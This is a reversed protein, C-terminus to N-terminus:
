APEHRREVWFTVPGDNTLHVDMMAGFVGTEVPLGVQERLLEVFRKYLVRAKKPGAARDFSPRNGREVDGYLTFQPVILAEGGVDTISRNMKDEDDAFIRLNACKHALWSAEEETDEEHVGLLVLMGPGISGVTEGSVEVSAHRVRQILAVM